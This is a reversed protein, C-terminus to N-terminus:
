LLHHSVVHHSHCLHLHAAAEKRPQLVRALRTLLLACKAFHGGVPGLVLKLAGESGPCILVVRGNLALHVCLKLFCDVLSSLQGLCSVLGAALLSSFDGVQRVVQVLRGQIAVLNLAIELACEGSKFSAFRSVDVHRFQFVDEHLPHAVHALLLISAVDNAGDRALGETALYELTDAGGGPLVHEVVASDLGGVLEEKSELVAVEPLSPEPPSLVGLLGHKVLEHHSLSEHLLSLRGLRLFHVADIVRLNNPGVARDSVIFRALGVVGESLHEAYELGKSNLLLGELLVYAEEFALTRHLFPELSGL